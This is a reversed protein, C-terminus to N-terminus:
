PRPLLSRIEPDQKAGHLVTPLQSFLPADPPLSVQWGLLTTCLPHASDPKSGLAGSGAFCRELRLLYDPCDLVQPGPLATTQNALM